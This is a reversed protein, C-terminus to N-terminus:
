THQLWLWLSCFTNMAGQQGPCVGETEGSGAAESGPPAGPSELGVGLEALGDAEDTQGGFMDGGIDDEDGGAAELEGQEETQTALLQQQQQQM